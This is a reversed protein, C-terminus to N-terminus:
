LVVVVRINDNIGKKQRHIEEKPVGCYIQIPCRKERSRRQHLPIRRDRQPHYLCRLIKRNQEEIREAPDEERCTFRKDAWRHAYRGHCPKCDHRMEKRLLCRVERQCDPEWLEPLNGGGGTETCVNKGKGCRSGSADPCTRNDYRYHKGHFTGDSDGGKIGTDLCKGM